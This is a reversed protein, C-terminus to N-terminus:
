TLNFIHGIEYNGARTHDTICNNRVGSANYSNRLVVHTHRLENSHLLYLTVYLITRVSPQKWPLYIYVPLVGPPQSQKRHCARGINNQHHPLCCCFEHVNATHPRLSNSVKSHSFTCMHVCIWLLAPRDFFCSHHTCMHVNECM